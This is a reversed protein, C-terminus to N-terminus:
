GDLRFGRNKQLLEIKVIGSCYLRDLHQRYPTLSARAKGAPGEPWPSTHSGDRLADIEARLDATLVPHTSQLEGTELALLQNALIQAYEKRARESVYAEETNSFDSVSEKALQEGYATLYIYLYEGLGMEEDLLAQNRTTSFKVMKPGASFASKLGQLGTSAAGSTPEDQDTELEDLNKISILVAQYDACGAQVAERVRIFAEIRQPVISGDLLPTYDEPWGFRDILAQEIQKADRVGTTLFYFASAVVFAITLAILLCGTHKGRNKLPKPKM